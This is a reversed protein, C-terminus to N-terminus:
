TLPTWSGDPNRCAAGRATRATAGLYVTHAYQRCNQSGVQYPQGPTVEGRRDGRAGQWTVKQGPATYELAKYEAELAAQRDRGDLGAGALGNGMAALLAGGVRPGAAAAAGTEGKGACGAALALAALLGLGVIRHGAIRNDM